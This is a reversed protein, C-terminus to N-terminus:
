LPISCSSSVDREPDFPNGNAEKQRCMAAPPVPPPCTAANMMAIASEWHTECNGLLQRGLRSGNAGWFLVEWRHHSVPEPRSYCGERADMSEWNPCLAGSVGTLCGMPLMQYSALSTFHGLQLSLRLCSYSWTDLTKTFHLMYPFAVHGPSLRQKWKKYAEIDWWSDRCLSRICSCMEDFSLTIEYQTHWTM